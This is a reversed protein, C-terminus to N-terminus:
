SNAVMSEPCFTLDNFMMLLVVKLRSVSLSSSVEEVALIASRGYISSNRELDSNVRMTQPAWTSAQVINLFSVGADLSARRILALNLFYQPNDGALAFQYHDYSILAPKVIEIYKRLHEKYATVTEGQTGLQENSAYTPFLNIYALHAPDRERLYAVFNALPRSNPQM